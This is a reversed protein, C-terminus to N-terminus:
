IRSPSLLWEMLMESSEQVSFINSLQSTLACNHRWDTFPFSLFRKRIQAKFYNRTHQDKTLTSNSVNQILRLFSSMEEVTNIEKLICNINTRSCTTVVNAVWMKLQAEHEKLYQTGRLIDAYDNKAQEWEPVENKMYREPIEDFNEEVFLSVICSFCVCSYTKGGINFTKHKIAMERPPNMLTMQLGAHTMIQGCEDCARNLITFPPKQPLHNM